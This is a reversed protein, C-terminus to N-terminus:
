RRGAKWGKSLRLRLAGLLRELEPDVKADGADCSGLFAIVAPLNEDALSYCVRNGERHFTVLRANRLIALHQSINPQKLNLAARLADVCSVDQSLLVVIRLRTPHALAKLLRAMNECEDLEVM